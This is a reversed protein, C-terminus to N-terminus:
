KDVIREDWTIINTIAGNQIRINGETPAFSDNLRLAVDGFVFLDDRVNRNFFFTKDDNGINMDYVNQM